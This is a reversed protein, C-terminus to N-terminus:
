PDPNGPYRPGSQCRINENEGCQSAGKQYGCGGHLYRVGAGGTHSGHGPGRRAARCRNRRHTKKKGMRKALLAEGLCHNIKHAGTHNLDERKLYIDAGGIKDSLNKSHFVPSPRGTFHKNLERLEEIFEPDDKIKEYSDNIEDLITQLQEPVYSGGYEGFRGNKDPLEMTKLPTNM